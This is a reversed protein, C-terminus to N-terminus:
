GWGLAVVDKSLDFSKILKIADPKDFVDIYRGEIDKSFKGKRAKFSKTKPPRCPIM